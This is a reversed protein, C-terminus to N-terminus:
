RGGAMLHEMVRNVESTGGRAYAKKITRFNSVPKFGKKYVMERTRGGTVKNSSNYKRGTAQLVHFGKIVTDRSPLEAAM